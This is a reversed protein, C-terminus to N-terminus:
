VVLAADGGAKPMAGDAGVFALAQDAFMTAWVNHRVPLAGAVFPLTGEPTIGDVLLRRLHLLEAADLSERVGNAALLAAVRLTQAVIDLRAAGAATPEVDLFEPVRGLARSQRLVEALERAIVPLAAPLLPHAPLSLFGEAAYLLPHVERHPREDLWRLSAALTREAAEVVTASVGPVVAAAGIVGAAAKALFAGRRTSWRDPLSGAGPRGSCAEFLGDHGVLIGLLRDVGQVVSGAPRLLGARAASAVGRLVMATDFTFVAANRWDPIDLGLHIRTRPLAADALWQGLWHQAAEARAALAESRGHRTAQWALWQLYYGTIEPYAYQARGDADVLGAVAGRQPGSRLQAPGELLWDALRRDIAELTAGTPVAVGASVAAANGGLPTSDGAQSAGAANM